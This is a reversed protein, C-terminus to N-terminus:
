KVVKLGFSIKQSDDPTSITLKSSGKKLGIASFPYLIYDSGTIKARTTDYRVIAAETNSTSVKFNGRIEGYYDEVYMMSDVRPVKVYFDYGRNEKVPAFKNISKGYEDCMVIKGPNKFALLFYEGYAGSGDKATAKVGISTYNPTKADVKLLGSPTITAYSENYTVAWEVKKNSIAGYETGCVAKLQTSKGATLSTVNAKAPAIKVSSVPNVVNVTCTAKKGSGDLAEFTVKVKGTGKGTATFCYVRENVDTGYSPMDDCSLLGENSIKYKIDGGNPRNFSDRKGGVYSVPIYANTMASGFENNCTFATVTKPVTLKTIVESIVEINLDYKKITGDVDKYEATVVYNGPATTKATTIKGNNVKIGQAVGNSDVTWSTAKKVAANDPATTVGLNISKGQAIKRYGNKINLGKIKQLVTLTCKAKIGSGDDAVATITTKGAKIITAINNEVSVVESNSSTFYVDSLVATTGDAKVVNFLGLLDYSEGGSFTYGNAKSSVATLKNISQTTSVTIDHIAYKTSDVNSIAWVRYDGPKANKAAKVVGNSVTVGNAKAAAEDGEYYVRWTLKNTRSNAPVVKATLAMSKGPMLKAPGSIAVSYVNSTLSINITAVKSVTGYPSVAIAKITLNDSKVDKLSVQIGIGDYLTTNNDPMGNKFIPNKGNTTYYIDKTLYDGNSITINAIGNYTTNNHKIEPAKPATTATTLNLAKPLYVIGSGTGAGAKITSAKMYKKLADVRKTGTLLNKNADLMAPIKSLKAQELIIAAEGAAISALMTNGTYTNYKDTETKSKYYATSLGVGPVAIDINKSYSFEGARQNSKDTAGVAVVYEYAAPYADYSGGTYAAPAFITVGKEYAYKVALELEAVPMDYANTMAIIPIGNDAAYRIAAVVSAMVYDTKLNCLKVGPAVGIGCEGNKLGALLGASATGYGNDDSFLSTPSSLRAGNVFQASSLAYDASNPIDSHSGNIGNAIIAITVGNGTMGNAYAYTSGIVEHHWQYYISRENLYPEGIRSGIYSKDSAVPVSIGYEGEASDALLLDDSTQLDSMNDVSKMEAKSMLNPYVAPYDNNTDAALRIAELVSLSDPLRFVAIGYEFSVLEAGYATAVAEAEERTEVSRFVSSAAYDVGEIANALYEVMGSLEAKKASESEAVSAAETADAVTAEDTLAEVDVVLEDETIADEAILLEDNIVLENDTVIDAEEGVISGNDAEILMEANMEDAFVDAQPVCTIVMATALSCALIRSLIGRRGKM